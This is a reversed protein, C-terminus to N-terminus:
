ESDEADMQAQEIGLLINRSIEGVMEYVAKRAYKREVRRTLTMYTVAIQQGLTEAALLAEAFADATEPADEGLFLARAAELRDATTDIAM